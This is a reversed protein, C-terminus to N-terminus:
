YNQIEEIYKNHKVILKEEIQQKTTRETSNKMTNNTHKRTINRHM